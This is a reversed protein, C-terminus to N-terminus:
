APHGYGMKILPLAVMFHEKTAIVDVERNSLLQYRKSINQLGTRTGTPPQRKEQLNNRVILMDKEYFIDIALPRATSIINHKVANEVLMQLTLPAIYQQLAEDPINIHVQLNEGFRIKHLFIYSSTFELETHVPVVEREKNDLLYRYVESLKETYEMAMRPEQEILAMLTNFSNFLFHPSIQSKLMNLQSKLHQSRLRDTEIQQQKWRTFFHSTEYLTGVIFTMLIDFFLMSFDAFFGHGEDYNKIFCLVQDSLITFSLCAAATVLLRKRTQELAPMQRRFFFLIHMNGAWFVTTFILGWLYGGWFTENPHSPAMGVTALLSVLPIGPWHIYKESFLKKASTM